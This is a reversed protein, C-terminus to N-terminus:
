LCLPVQQPPSNQSDHLCFSGLNVNMCILRVITKMHRYKLYNPINKPNSLNESIQDPIYLAGM